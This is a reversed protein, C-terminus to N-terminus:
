EKINRSRGRCFETFRETLDEDANGNEKTVFEIFCLLRNVVEPGFAHEAKCAARQAIDLDIGLISVFFSKIINHKQVVKAAATRGKRTLTVSGYPEYNALGKEKLTRLAGTVSPMAISLREAIDKCHAHGQQDALNFIVELYDELSASLAETRATTMSISGFSCGPKNYNPLGLKDLQKEAIRFFIGRVARQPM